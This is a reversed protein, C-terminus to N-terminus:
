FGQQSNPSFGSVKYSYYDIDDDLVFMFSNNCITHVERTVYWKANNTSTHLTSYPTKWSELMPTVQITYRSEPDLQSNQEQPYRQGDGFDLEFDEYYFGTLATAYQYGPAVSSGNYHWNLNVKYCHSDLELSDDMLRASSEDNKVIGGHELFGSKWVRFWKCTRGDNYCKHHYYVVYDFGRDTSGPAPSYEQYRSVNSFDKLLYQSSLEQSRGDNQERWWDQIGSLHYQELHTSVYSSLLKYFVDELENSFRTDSSDVFFDRWWANDTPLHDNEASLSVRIKAKQKIDGLCYLPLKASNGTIKGSVVKMLFDILESSSGSQAEVLLPALVGNKQAVSCIYDKNNMTFEELDETNMWVMDGKNYCYSSKNKPTLVANYWRCCWISPKIGAQPLLNNDNRVMVGASRDIEAKDVLDVKTTKVNSYSMM